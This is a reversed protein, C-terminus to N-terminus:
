PKAAVLLEPRSRLLLATEAKAADLQANLADLQTSRQTRRADLLDTLPIAGRAFAFEAQKLVTAARPLIQERFKKARERQSRADAALRDHEIRADRLAREATLEAQSLESQARAIEGQYNYGLPLPIQVRLEILRNSVGPYHDFSLGWTPDVKRLALAGAVSAKAADIRSQAARVDGRSELQAAVVSGPQDASLAPLSPWVVDNVRASKLAQRPVFASLALEARELDVTASELDASVREGDIEVRLADQASMDGADRRRAATRTAEQAVTVTERMLRVRERAGLWDYYAAQAAVMQQLATEATDSRAASLAHEAARTRLLRKDGREWTWDVGISKDIRKRGLPDGPGLGNQLDIQSLKGSLIPLPAHDASSVDAEASREAQLSQRVVLGSQVANLVDRLTPEARALGCAATMMLLATFAGRGAFRCNRLALMTNVMNPCRSDRLAGSRHRVCDIGWRM